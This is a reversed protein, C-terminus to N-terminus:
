SRGGVLQEANSQVPLIWHQLAKIFPEYHLDAITFALYSDPRVLLIDGHQTGLRSRFQRKFDIFATTDINLTNIVAGQEFVIYPTIINGTFPKVANLIRMIQQQDRELYEPVIDIFLSYPTHRLIEYLQMSTSTSATLQAPKLELDPVRDGAQRAHPLRHQQKGDKLANYARDAQRYNIGLGSLQERLRRQLGTLPLITKFALSGVGKLIPNHIRAARVLMDSVRLVQAGVPHREAHYTDLLNVPAQKHLVLALKWALNFADQMGTNMGQGGAPSHIHAADGALFVRGVRYRKVQRLQATWRTMWLPDSLHPKAPVIADISDQLEELTLEEQKSSNQYHTDVTIVRIYGDRFPFLMAIGRENSFQSIGKNAIEGDLKVDALFATWPYGHGPFPLALVHRVTSHAGDCGILYSAHIEETGAPTQVTATVGNTDQTFHQLEYGREIHQGLSTLHAELLEETEAQPVILMYPYNTALHSFNTADMQRGSNANLNVSPTTYGRRVFEDALKASSLDLLEMTRAHIALAKSYPSHQPAKELLRFSVGRRALELAAMLGTPGAGIILVDVNNQEYTTNQQAM